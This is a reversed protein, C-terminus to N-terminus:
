LKDDEGYIISPLKITFTTGEGLNSDVMITGQHLEVITRCIYLGLGSGIKKQLTLGSFYREFVHPIMEPPIGPGNDIIKIEIENELIQAIIKIQSEKPINQIANAILNIFVRKLDNKNAYLKISDPTFSKKLTINKSKILPELESFCTDILYNLIIIEKNLPIIRDEYEYSELMTNVMELLNYNSKVLGNLLQNRKKSDLSDYENKLIEVVREQAILPTRLDHTLTAVLNDRLNKSEELNDLMTNFSDFSDAAEKSSKVPIILRDKLNDKSVENFALTLKNMPIIFDNEFWKGILIVFILAFVGAFSILLLNTRLLGQEYPISFIIQGVIESHNNQLTLIASAYSIDDIKEFFIKPKIQQPNKILPSNIINKTFKNSIKTHKKEVIRISYEPNLMSLANFHPNNKLFDGVLLAGKSKNKPVFIPTLYFTSLHSQGNIKFSKIGFIPQEDTANKLYDKFLAKEQPTLKTNTEIIKGEPTLLMVIDIQAAKKYQILNKKLNKEADIKKENKMLHRVEQRSSIRLENYNDEIADKVLIVGPKVQNEVARNLKVQTHQLFLITFIFIPLIATLFFFLQYKQISNLKNLFKM